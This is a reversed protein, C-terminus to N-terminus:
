RHTRKKKKKKQSQKPKKPKVAPKAAPQSPPDNKIKAVVPESVTKMPQKRNLWIGYGVLLSAFVIILAAVGAFNKNQTASSKNSTDSPGVSVSPNTQSPNSVVGLSSRQQQTLVENGTNKQISSDSQNQIPNGTAQANESQQQLSNTANNQINAQAFAPLPLLYISLFAALAMVNRKKVM